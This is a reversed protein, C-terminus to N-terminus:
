SGDEQQEAGRRLIGLYERVEVLGPHVRLAREFSSVAPRYEHLKM